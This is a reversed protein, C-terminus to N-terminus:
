NITVQDIMWADGYYKLSVLIDLERKNGSLKYVYKGVAFAYTNYRSSRKYNFSSVTFYDMFDVLILEAQTPSYYGKENSIINLYVQDGFYKNINNINRYTFGQGIEKFTGKCLQYKAKVTETSYKKDKWWNDQAHANEIFGLFLVIFCCLVSFRIIM